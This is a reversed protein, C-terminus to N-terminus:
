LVVQGTARAKVRKQGTVELNVTKVRKVLLPDLSYALVIDRRFTAANHILGFLALESAEAGRAPPTSLGMNRQAKTNDALIELDQDPWGPARGRLSLGAFPDSPASIEVALCLHTSSVPNLHWHFPVTTVPGVDTAHFVVAPDPDPLSVDPDASS